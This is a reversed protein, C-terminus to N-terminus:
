YGRGGLKQQAREMEAKRSQERLLELIEEAVVPVDEDDVFVSPHFPGAICASAIM